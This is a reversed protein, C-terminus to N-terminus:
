TEQKEQSLRTMKPFCSKQMQRTLKIKQSKWSSNHNQLNEPMKKMIFIPVFEWLFLVINHPKFHSLVHTLPSHFHCTFTFYSLWTRSKAVWQSYGVLSRWGHSKGPLFVPTPQWKRRGSIKRVWPEFGPRGVTYASAKGDSGGPFDLVTFIGYVM